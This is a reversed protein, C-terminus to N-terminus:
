IDGCIINKADRSNVLYDDPNMEAQELLLNVSKTSLHLNVVTRSVVDRPPCKLSIRAIVNKGAHHRRAAYMNAKYSETYNYCSSLSISFDPPAIKLLIDQAQSMFLTNKSSRFKIDSTSRPHSELGGGIKLDGYEFISELVIGLEPFIEAKM